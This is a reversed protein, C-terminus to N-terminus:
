LAYYLLVTIDMFIRLLICWGRAVYMEKLADVAALAEVAEEGAGGGGGGGIERRRQHVAVDERRRRLREVRQGPLLLHTGHFLSVTFM